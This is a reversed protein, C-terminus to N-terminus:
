ETNQIRSILFNSERRALRKKGKAPRAMALLDIQVARAQKDEEYDRLWDSDGDYSYPCDFGNMDWDAWPAKNNTNRVRRRGQEVVKKLGKESERKQSEQDQALTLCYSCRCKADRATVKRCAADPGYRPAIIPREHKLLHPNIYDEQHRTWKPAFQVDGSPFTWLSNQYQKFERQHRARTKLTATINSRRELQGKMADRDIDVPVTAAM